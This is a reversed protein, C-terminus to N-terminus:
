KVNEIDCVLRSFAVSLGTKIQGNEKLVQLPTKYGLCRRPRNQLKREVERVYKVGYQSIDCGKPFYQRILRNTNEVAGKEWSHYPHCFYVPASILTSLERHKAFSIDNDLTLSNFAVFIGTREYIKKNITDTDRSMIKEILPLRSKREHLVLLVGKGDKGSVILDGEWDGFRAKNEIIEPRQDIFIRGELGSAKNNGPRGSKKKYNRLKRELNRGYPSRVFKYIAKESAYKIDPRENKLHGAIEDPSWDEALMEEVFDRLKADGAIKMGQHKSGKRKVYAKHDAKKPDYVGRVVRKRIEESISSKSRSLQRAIESVGNGANRLAAIQWREETKIHGSKTGM